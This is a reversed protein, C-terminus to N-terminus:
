IATRKLLAKNERPHQLVQQTLLPNTQTTLMLLFGLMSSRVFEVVTPATLPHVTPCRLQEPLMADFTAAVLTQVQIVLTLTWQVFLVRMLLLLHTCIHTPCTPVLLAAVPEANPVIPLRM